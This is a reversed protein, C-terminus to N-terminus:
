VVSKRDTYTPARSLNSGGGPEATGHLRELEVDVDHGAPPHRLREADPQFYRAPHDPDIRGLEVDRRLRNTAIPLTAKVEITRGVHHYVGVWQDVHLEVRDYRLDPDDALLAVAEVAALAPGFHIGRSVALNVADHELQAKRGANM